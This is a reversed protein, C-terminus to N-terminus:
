LRAITRMSCCARSKECCGTSLCGPTAPSCPPVFALVPGNEVVAPTALGGAHDGATILFLLCGMIALSLVLNGVGAASGGGFMRSSLLPLLSTLRTHYHVHASLACTAHNSSILAHMCRHLSCPYCPYINHARADQSSHM